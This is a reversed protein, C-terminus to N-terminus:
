FNVTISGIYRRGDLVRAYEAQSVTKDFVNYIGASFIAEGLKIGLGTDVMTYGPTQVDSSENSRGRYRAKTWWRTAANLRWDLSVNSQQKPQNNLPEGKDEGSQQESDTYTYNLALRLSSTPQYSFTAELGQLMAKDVNEYRYIRQYAEGQYACDYAGESSEQCIIPKQIKDDFDTRYFTLSADARNWTWNGSLEYTLSSEAKLASNGVDAGDVSRGGGGEVWDSDGQKLDPTRYGGSAGGKLMFTEGLKYNAYLRPVFQGGYNEDEVYRAGFTLALASSILWQDEAFVAADWRDLTAKGIARAPNETQQKRYQGGWNLINHPLPMVTSTNFLTQTFSSQQSQNDLAERRLYSHTHYQEGWKLQHSVLQHRRAQKLESDSGTNEATGLSKQATYGAEFEFRNHQGPTWGLKATTDKRTNDFYGSAIRDEDRHFYSGFVTLSLRDRALPGSAYYRYQERDGSVSNEQLTRDIGVSGGWQKPVTRTIINIVGGLADSGYLSSMPGRVVEIREIASIPPLWGYQSGQGFGNYYAQQTAGQPRGDILLLTYKSDMGRISIQSTGGKSTPGEDVYVGPLDNLAETVDRYARGILEERNIVSVTAPADILRQAYGSASVVTTGLDSETAAPKPPEPRQRDKKRAPRAEQGDRRLSVVRGNIRVSLDTGALLAEFAQRPTYEGSLAPAELGEVLVPDVVVSLGTQRGLDLLATGLPQAPQEISAIPAAPQGYAPGEVILGAILFLLAMTGTGRYRHKILGGM